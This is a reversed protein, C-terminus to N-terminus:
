LRNSSLPFSSLDPLLEFEEFEQKVETEPEVKVVPEKWALQTRVKNEFPLWLGLYVWRVLLLIGFAQALVSIMTLPVSIFYTGFINGWIGIIWIPSGIIVELLVPFLIIAAIIWFWAQLFLILLTIALAWLKKKIFLFSIVPVKFTVSKSEMNKYNKLKRKSM